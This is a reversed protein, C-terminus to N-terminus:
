DTAASAELGLELAGVAVLVKRAEEAYKGEPYDALLKDFFLKAEVDNNEALFSRGLQFFLRDKRSYDPYSDVLYLKSITVSKKPEADLVKDIMVPFTIKQEKM